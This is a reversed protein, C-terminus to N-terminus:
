RFNLFISFHSMYIYPLVTLFEPFSACIFGAETSIHLCRRLKSKKSKLKGMESFINMAVKCFKLRKFLCFLFISGKKNLTIPKPYEESSFLALDLRIEEENDIVKHNRNDKLIIEFRENQHFNIKYCFESFIFYYVKDLSRSFHDHSFSKSVVIGM